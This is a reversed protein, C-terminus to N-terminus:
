GKPPPPDPAAVLSVPISVISTQADGARRRMDSSQREDPIAVSMGCGGIVVCCGSQGPMQCSQHDKQMESCGEPHAAPSMVMQEHGKDSEHKGCILDSGPLTVRIISLALAAILLRRLGM